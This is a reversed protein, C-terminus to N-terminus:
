PLDLPDDFGPPNEDKNQPLPAALSTVGRVHSWTKLGEVAAFLSTPPILQKSLSTGSYGEHVFAFQTMM